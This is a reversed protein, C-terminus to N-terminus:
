RRVGWVRLVGKETGVGILLRDDDVAVAAVNTAIVGGVPATREVAAGDATRGVVGFETFEANPLLLEVRQDGDFDGAVAMDLNRSGLKHSTYGSVDATLQLTADKLRFFEVVRGLHPTLVDALELEGAPGFPAVVLQHRWRNGRGVAPSSAIKEGAENFVVLQAGQEKDSVTVIIERDGDNNLDTWIPAIGEVVAPEPIAIVQAVRPAPQTEVLTISAAEIGDGLVAHRYRTTPTTLLLLRENEDVLIRADPLADVALSVTEDQDRIMLNGDGDIYAVRGMEPLPVPHTLSLRNDTEISLLSVAEGEVQLLPPAGPAIQNPAIEIAEVSSSRTVEFGQVRGDALIVGWVSNGEPGPAAVVWTPEGNLSIDIPEAAPLIGSGTVLRNGDPQQYTYGYAISAAATPSPSPAPLPSEVDQTPSAIPTISEATTPSPTGIAPISPLPSPAATSELTPTTIIPTPSGAAPPPAPQTASCGFLLAVFM